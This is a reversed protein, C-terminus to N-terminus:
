RAEKIVVKKYHLARHEKLQAEINLSLDYVEMIKHMKMNHWKEYEKEIDQTSTIFVAFDMYDFEDCVVILHTYGGEKAKNVWGRITNLSTGM